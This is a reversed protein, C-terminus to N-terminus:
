RVGTVEKPEHKALGEAIFRHVVTPTDREQAALQRIRDGHHKPLRIAVTVKAKSQMKLRGKNLAAFALM